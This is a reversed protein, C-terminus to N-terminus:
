AALGRRGAPVARDRVARLAADLAHDLAASWRHAEDLVEPPSDHWRDPHFVELLHAHAAAVEAESATPSVGLLEFPNTDM